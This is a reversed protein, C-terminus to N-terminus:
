PRFTQWLARLGQEGGHFYEFIAYRLLIAVMVLGVPGLLMFAMRVAREALSLASALRAHDRARMASPATAIIM